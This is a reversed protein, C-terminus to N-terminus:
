YNEITCNNQNRVRFCGVDVASAENGAVSVTDRWYQSYDGSVFGFSYGGYFVDGVGWPSCSSLVVTDSRRTYPSPCGGSVSSGFDMTLEFTTDSCDSTSADTHFAYALFALMNASTSAGGITAGSDLSLEDGGDSYSNAYAEDTGGGITEYRTEAVVIDRRNLDQCTDATASPAEWDLALAVSLAIWVLRRM